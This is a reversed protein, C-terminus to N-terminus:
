ENCYQLKLNENSFMEYWMIHYKIGFIVWFITPSLIKHVNLCVSVGWNSHLNLTCKIDHVIITECNGKIAIKFQHPSLRTAFIDRFQFCLTRSTLQYLRGGSYHSSSQKFAQDHNFTPRVLFMHLELHFTVKLLIIVFSFYSLSDMQQIKQTFVIEFTNLFWGLIVV